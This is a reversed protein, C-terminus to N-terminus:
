DLRWIEYNDQRVPTAVRTFTRGAAEARRHTEPGIRRERTFVWHPGPRELLKDLTDTQFVNRDLYFLMSPLSTQQLRPRFTGLDKELRSLSYLAIPEDKGKLWRALAHAEEQGSARYWGSIALNLILCLFASGIWVQAVARRGIGGTPAGAGESTAGLKGRRGLFTGILMAAPVFAPLVYHPLKTQSISFFLVVVLMWTGLARRLFQRDEDWDSDSQTERSPWARRIRWSWPIMGAFLVLPFYIPHSWWPAAHAADGGAFREINQKILFDQVFVDAMKLYAPLYWTAVVLFFVVTGVFWGGRFRPLYGPERVLLWILVGLFLAGSVPGKALVALGLAAAAAIRWRRDGVLSEFFWVFAATQALVLFPDALMMRGVGAFFASTGLVAITWWAAVDGFHRRVSWGALAITGLTALVSPLRPGVTEGFAALSPIAAWYMLIPKEFWPRGNYYPILWEGRRLMESAVAAYFGEDLDMLGTLWFGMLPLAAAIWAVAWLKGPLRVPGPSTAADRTAPPVTM